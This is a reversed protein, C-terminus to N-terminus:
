GAPPRRSEVVYRQVLHTSANAIIHDAVRLRRALERAINGVLQAYQLPEPEQIFRRTDPASLRLLTTPALARVTASRPQLVDLIAMEGIWDGPGLLALRVDHDADGKHLVEVEGSLVVFMHATLEGETIVLEGPQALETPLEKALRAVVGDNVGDFLHSERLLEIM